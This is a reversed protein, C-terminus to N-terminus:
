FHFFILNTRNLIYLFEFFASHFVYIKQYNGTPKFKIEESTNIESIENQTKVMETKANSATEPTASLNSSAVEPSSHAAMEPSGFKQITASIPGFNVALFEFCVFNVFNNINWLLCKSYKIFEPKWGRLRILFLSKRHLSNIIVVYKFLAPVYYFYFRKNMNIEYYM